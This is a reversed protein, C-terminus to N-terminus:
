PGTDPTKKLLGHAEMFKQVSSKSIKRARIEPVSVIDDATIGHYKIFSVLILVADVDSIPEEASTPM